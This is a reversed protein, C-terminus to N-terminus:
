EKAVPEGADEQAKIWALLETRRIRPGAHYSTKPFPFHAAARTRARNWYHVTSVDVNLYAAVDGYTM